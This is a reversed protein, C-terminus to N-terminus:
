YGKFVNFLCGKPSFCTKRYYISMALREAYRRDNIFGLEEMKEAAYVSASEPFNRRLKEILQKKSCDCRELYWLARSKARSCYSDQIIKSLTVDDLELGSCLHYLDCVIRDIAILGTSDVTAGYDKPDIENDFEIGFLSKRRSHLAVIKM